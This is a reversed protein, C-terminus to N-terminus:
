NSTAIADVSPESEAPFSAAEPQFPQLYPALKQWTKPGVKGDVALDNQEQFARIAKKTKPGLSGDINGEYFNTNKLAQQIQKVAPKVIEPGPIQTVSNTTVDGPTTAVSDVATASSRLDFESSFPNPEELAVQQNAPFEVQEKAKQQCGALVALGIILMTVSFSKSMQSEVKKLINLILILDNLKGLIPAERVIKGQPIAKRNGPSLGPFEKFEVPHVHQFSETESVIFYFIRAPPGNLKQRERRGRM